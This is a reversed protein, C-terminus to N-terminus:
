FWYEEQTRPTEEWAEIKALIQDWDWGEDTFSCNASNWVTMAYQIDTPVPLSLGCFSCAIATAWSEKGKANYVRYLKIRPTGGCCACCRIPVKRTTSIKNM